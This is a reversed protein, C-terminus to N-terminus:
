QNKTLDGEGKIRLYETYTKEFSNTKEANLYKTILDHKEALKDAPIGAKIYDEVTHTSLWEPTYVAEGVLIAYPNVFYEYVKKKDFSYMVDVEEDTFDPLADGFMRCRETNAENFRERDINFEVIFNYTNYESSERTGNPNIHKFHSQWEKLEKEDVLKEFYYPVGGFNMNWWKIVTISDGGVGLEEEKTNSTSMTGDEPKETTQMKNESTSLNTGSKATTELAVPINNKRIAASIPFASCVLIICISLAAIKKTAKRRKQKEDSYVKAKYYIDELFEKDNKM